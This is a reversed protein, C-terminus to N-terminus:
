FFPHWLNKNFSKISPRVQTSVLDNRVFVLDCQYLSPGYYVLDVIDFLQFGNTICFSLRDLISNFTTEVIIVAAQSLHTGFGQLVELDKGDVDVKLLFNHDAGVNLEDYRMVDIVECSLIKKGDVMSTQRNLQSHTAVGNSYVSSVTLYLKGNENSLAIPFLRNKISKYNEAISNHFSAVPEFLYHKIKPFTTILEPTSDNVGVDVVDSIQIM